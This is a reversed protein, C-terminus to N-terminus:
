GDLVQVGAADVRLRLTGEDWEAVRFRAGDSQARALLDVFTVNWADGTAEVEVEVAEPGYAYLRFARYEATDRARALAAEGAADTPLTELYLRDMTPRGFSWWTVKWGEEVREYTRWQWEMNGPQVSEAGEVDPRSAYRVAGVVVFVVVLAVACRRLVAEGATGRALRWVLYGSVGMAPLVGYFFGNLSFRELSWPFLLPVGWVTLFDLALHTLSALMAIAVLRPTFRWVAMRPWRREWPPLALLMMAGLAYLPAGLLSHSVGRHGFLEWEPGLLGVWGTLVDLDPAYGGLGAALREAQPRGLAWMVLYPVAFHTFLDM